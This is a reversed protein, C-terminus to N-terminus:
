KFPEFPKFTVTWTMGENKYTVAGIEVGDFIVVYGFEDIGQVAHGKTVKELDESKVERKLLGTIVKSLVENECQKLKKWLESMLDIQYDKLHENGLNVPEIPILEYNNTPEMYPYLYTRFNAIALIYTEPM